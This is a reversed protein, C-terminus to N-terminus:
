RPIEVSLLQRGGVWVHVECLRKPLHNALENLRRAQRALPLLAVMGDMKLDLVPRGGASHRSTLRYDHGQFELKLDCELLM